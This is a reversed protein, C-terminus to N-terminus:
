PLSPWLLWALSLRSVEVRANPFAGGSRADRGRNGGDHSQAHTSPAVRRCTICIPAGACRLNISPSPPGRSGQLGEM